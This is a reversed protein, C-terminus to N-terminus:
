SNDRNIMGPLSRGFFSAICGIMLLDRSEGLFISWVNRGFAVEIVVEMGKKSGKLGSAVFKENHTVKIFVNVLGCQIEVANNGLKPENIGPAMVMRMGWFGRGVGATGSAYIVEIIEINPSESLLDHM